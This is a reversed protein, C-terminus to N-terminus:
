TDLISYPDLQHEYEKRTIEDIVVCDYDLKVMDDFVEDIDQKHTFATFEKIIADGKYAYIFYYHM